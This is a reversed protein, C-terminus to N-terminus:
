VDNGIHWFSTRALEHASDQRCNRIGQVDAVDRRECIWIYDFLYAHLHLPFVFNGCFFARFVHFLKAGINSGNLVPLVLMFLNRSSAKTKANNKTKPTPKASGM